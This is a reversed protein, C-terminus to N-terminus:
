DKSYKEEYQCSLSQDITISYMNTVKRISNRISNTVKKLMHTIFSPKGNLKSEVFGNIWLLERDDFPKNTTFKSFTNMLTENFISVQKHVSKNSFTLEWNVSEISEKISEVNAKNYDWVLHEYPLPYKINLFYTQM